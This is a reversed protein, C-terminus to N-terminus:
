KKQINKINREVIEIERKAGIKKFIILAENYFKLANDLDGKDNYILGINNLAIAEGQRNGIVKHIKLADHLNKLANDLKGKDKYILGINGLDLAEGFRSDIERHIELADQHYKLANDLDGKIKFILGINGLQNAEGQRYGIERDIKLADQFYKLANDVAGKYLSIEAINGLQIAEGQRYGIEQNIKLADQYYKLADDLDGKDKVILGINSLCAAEELRYGIEKVIKLSDQHYKLATDLDGKSYFILGINTLSAAEGERDGIEKHIELADQLYKLADILDGKLHYILGINGLDAAEGQRYNIEKFIELADQLYKLADDLNGKDRYILGINSIACSEIKRAEEHYIELVVDRKAIRTTKEYYDLAKEHKGTVYYINGINLFLVMQQKPDIFYEASGEVLLLAENYREQEVLFTLKSWFKKFQEDDSYAIGDSYWVAGSQASIKSDKEAIGLISEKIYNILDEPADIAAGTKEKDPIFLPEKYLRLGYGDLIDYTELFPSKVSEKLKNFLADITEQEYNPNILFVKIKGNETFTSRVMLQCWWHFKSDAPIERQKLKEVIVRENDLDLADGLKLLSALLKQRVPGEPVGTDELKNLDLKRHHRAIEAISDAYYECNDLGLKIKADNKVSERIITYSAEHHNKRIEELESITYSEKLPLGSYTPYQMGIDHLYAAAILIFREQDKLKGPHEELLEGIRKIITESHKVDHRTYHPLLSDALIKEAKLRINGICTIFKDETLRLAKPYEENRM